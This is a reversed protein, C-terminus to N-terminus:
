PTADAAGTAPATGEPAPFAPEGRVVRDVAADLFRLAPPLESLGRGNGGQVPPGLLDYWDGYKAVTVDRLADVGVPVLLTFGVNPYTAVEASHPKFHIRDRLATQRAPDFAPALTAWFEREWREAQADLSPFRFQVAGDERREATVGAAIAEGWQRRVANAADTLVIAQADTLGLVRRDEAPVSLRGYWPDNPSRHLEFVPGTYTELGTPAPNSQVDAAAQRAEEAAPDPFAPEGRKVRELAGELFRLRPPLTRAPTEASKAPIHQRGTAYITDYWEGQRGLTIQTTYTGVPLLSTETPNPEVVSSPMDNGFMLRKRLATQQPVSLLPDVEDYFEREWRQERQFLDPFRFTVSGVENVTATAEAAVLAAWERRVRNAAAELGEVQGPNLKLGDVWSPTLRLRAYWPLNNARDVEAFVRWSLHRALDPMATQHTGDASQGVVVNAFADATSGEEVRQSRHTGHSVAGDTELHPSTWWWLAALLVVTAACVAAVTEGWQRRGTEPDVRPRFVRSLGAGTDHPAGPPPEPRMPPPVPGRSLRSLKVWLLVALGLGIVGGTVSALAVNLDQEGQTLGAAGDFEWYWVSIGGGFAAAFTGVILAAPVLWTCFVALRRGRVPPDDGRARSTRVQRVAAWGLLPVTLPAAVAACSLAFLFLLVLPPVDNPGPTTEVTVIWSLGAAPITLLWVAAWIAPRSLGGPLTRVIPWRSVIGVVAGVGGLTEGRESRWGWGPPWWIPATQRRLTVWGAAALGFPAGWLPVEDGGFLIALPLAIFATAAATWLATVLCDWVDVLWVASDIQVWQGDSAEWANSAFWRQWATSPRETPRVSLLMGGVGRVGGGLMACLLGVVLPDDARPGYHFPSAVVLAVGLALAAGALGVLLSAVVRLNRRVEAARRADPANPIARAAPDAHQPVATAPRPSAPPPDPVPDLPPRDYWGWVGPWWTPPKTGAATQWVALGVAVLGGGLSGAYADTELVRLALGSGTGAATPLWAAGLLDRLAPGFFRGAGGPDDARRAREAVAFTLHFLTGLLAAITGLAVLEEWAPGSALFLAVLVCTAGGVAALGGAAALAGAGARQGYGGGARLPAAGGLTVRVNGSPAGGLPSPSDPSGPSPSLDLDGIQPTAPDNPLGLSDVAARVDSVSQYRKAPEGELAKLVIDDLRVDPDGKGKFFRSPPAFRGLPLEGTLLEYFVVGLSYIDARHDVDRTGRMQEPAMYHPTGMAQRTGTLTWPTGTALDEGRGLKALGFDAIKVTGRGDDGKPDLLINEPKVDRHVIGRAHAFQLAACIQRVIELAKAPAVPGGGDDAARQMVDRLNAGDVYEMLFYFLGERPEGNPGPPPTTQGFDYVQVIHPHNLRALTRAERLFREAFADDRGVEPPLVKLAVVRDLKAQRAKYVAGMGGRGLMAQLDLDPFHEALEELGPAVFRGPAGATASGLQSMLGGSLLCRPCLGAPADAPLASRCQPCRKGPTPETAGADDPGPETPGPDTPGPDTPSAGAPDTLPAAPPATPDLSMEPTSAAASM